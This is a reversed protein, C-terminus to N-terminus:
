CPRGATNAPHKRRFQSRWSFLQNRNLGHRRALASISGTTSFREAVIALKEDPTWTRRRREGTIVEFRYYPETKPTDDHSAQPSVSRM